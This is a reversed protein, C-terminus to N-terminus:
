CNKKPDESAMKFASKSLDSLMNDLGNKKLKLKSKPTKAWFHRLGHTFPMKFKWKKKRLRELLTRDPTLTLVDFYGEMSM